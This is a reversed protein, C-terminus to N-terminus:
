SNGNTNEQKRFCEACFWKREQGPADQFRRALNKCLSYRNTIHRVRLRPRSKMRRELIPQLLTKNCKDPALMSDRAIAPAALQLHDLTLTV